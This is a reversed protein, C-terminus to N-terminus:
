AFQLLDEDKLRAISARVRAFTALMVEHARAVERGAEASARSYAASLGMEAQGTAAAHHSDGTAAVAATRAQTVAEFTSSEHAAYGQVTNVLAPILDHRRKLQVSIQAWSEEVANELGVLKNYTTIAWFAVAILIVVSAILVILSTDM